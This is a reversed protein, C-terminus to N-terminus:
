PQGDGDFVLEELLAGGIGQALGGVLQGEVLRPNIAKGVDYAIAYDLITVQGTEPDVEVTAVHSGYPYTMRPAEFVHTASLVQGLEAACIQALTPEMGQGLSTVGSYVVLRGARDIEVRATEWPGLGSKEVISAIGIGVLRGGKRMELQEARFRAYHAAQVAADLASAYDGTDYVTPVGLAATGVSFPMEGAPIFNRRRIEVPDEGLRRALLDIMRERVFNAEFRGPARYTGTPTKNTLLCDIDCSYAP